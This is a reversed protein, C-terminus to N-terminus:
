WNVPIRVKNGAKNKFLIFGNAKGYEFLEKTIEVDARCYDIIKQIKGEKWWKLAALGDATKNKSLTVGALHDLSLRFGLHRYVDELIDLTALKRFDFKSYGKLVTYDFRKINFGVVCELKKLCDILRPIEAEGFSTYTDKISDYLVACSIGMRDCQHWGGVDAASRQTELDLVGFHIREAPMKAGKLGTENLITGVKKLKMLM